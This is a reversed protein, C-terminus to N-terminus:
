YFFKKTEKTQNRIECTIKMLIQIFSCIILYWTVEECILDVSYEEESMKAQKFLCMLHSTFYTQDSM